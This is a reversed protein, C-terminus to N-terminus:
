PINSGSWVSDRQMLQKDEKEHLSFKLVSLCQLVYVIHCTLDVANMTPLTSAVQKKSSSDTFVIVGV